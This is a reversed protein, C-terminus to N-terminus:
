GFLVVWILVLVIWCGLLVKGFDILGVFDNVIFVFLCLEVMVFDICFVFM